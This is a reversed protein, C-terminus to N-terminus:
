LPTTIEIETIYKSKGCFQPFAYGNQLWKDFIAIAAYAFRCYSLDLPLRSLGYGRLFVFVAVILVFGFALVLM